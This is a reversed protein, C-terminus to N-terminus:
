DKMTLLWSRMNPVDEERGSLRLVEEYLDLISSTDPHLPCTAARAYIMELVKQALDEREISKLCRALETLPLFHAPSILNRNKNYISEIQMLHLEVKDLNGSLISLRTLNSINTLKYQEMSLPVMWLPTQKVDNILKLSELTLKLAEEYEEVEIMIQAKATFAFILVHRNGEKQEDAIAISQNVSELAEKFEGRYCLSVARNSLETAYFPYRFTKSSITKQDILAYQDLADEHKGQCQQTYAIFFNLLMLHPERKVPLFALIQRLKRLYIETGLYDPKAYDNLLKITAMTQIISGTLYWAMVTTFVFTSAALGLNGLVLQNGTIFFLLCFLILTSFLHFRNLNVMHGTGADGLLLVSKKNNSAAM